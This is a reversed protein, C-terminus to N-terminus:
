GTMVAIQYNEDSAQLCKQM